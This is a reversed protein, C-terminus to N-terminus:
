IKVSLEAGFTPATNPFVYSNSSTQYWPQYNFVNYVNFAFKFRQRIEKGVSMHFNMIPNPASNTNTESTPMYLYGYRPDNKDFKTIAVYDYGITRYAIPIGNSEATKTKSIITCEATFQVILSIKPIHTVSTVRGNSFTTTSNTAPYLGMLAYDSQTTTVDSPRTKWTSTTTRYNTSNIGGSITFSTAIAKVKPTSVILEIGRSTSALINQFSYRNLQYKKMSDITVIPKAGEVYTATYAPLSIVEYNGTATIGNKNWKSYLNATVNFGDKRYQGSLELTQSQSPKLNKNTQDYRDVYILSYSEAEKGNYANLLPIEQFSPGPYRQALAPSKFAIGYALGVRLTKNVEYNTNIRPSGTVKGNQIDVRGGARVHLNRDSVRMKFVDEAYFGFDQQPVIRSYDYYREGMGPTQSGSTSVYALLQPKEGDALQGLGKNRGYNYNGGITLFHSITGTRFENSMDLGATATVPRGDIINTGRYIGPAYSGEHIGTTTATTYLIYAKNVDYEKYSYQHGESYRLNLTINKVFSGNVRYNAKNSISFNWSDFRVKASSEDDPDKKIGDLNRGYDVITTSKLRKNKGYFNTWIVNSTMREYAKLKERNDFTSNVYSFSANMIGAKPSLRFGKSFSASTAQDRIQTRFYGKSIGAQREIVVAGDTLDGYRASAVGSIVEISEINDPPIQRLDTGGYTYDGTYTTTGSGSLGWSNGSTIFSSIGVGYSGPNRTQMNMNNTINNGDMIIAVGFANNLEYAGKGYTTTEFNARLQINQVNQLSPAQMTRNPIQNLLDNLSLAPTQEIMERTIMLSSNSSGEFTRNATVEINKLRLSVEKMFVIPLITDTALQEIKRMQQQYGVYSIELTFTSIGSLLMTFNGYNDTTFYQNLEKIRVSAAPLAIGDETLVRGSVVNRSTAAVPAPPPPIIRKQAPTASKYIVLRNGQLRFALGTGKLLTSAISEISQKDFSRVPVAIDDADTPNFAINVGSQASLALLAHDLKWGNETRFTITQAHCVATILLLCAIKIVDKVM